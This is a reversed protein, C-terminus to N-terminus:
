GDYRAPRKRSEEVLNWVIGAIILGAGMFVVVDLREGYFTWGIM